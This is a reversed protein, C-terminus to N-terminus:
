IDEDDEEEDEEFVEEEPREYGLLDAFTKPTAKKNDMVFTLVEDSCDVWFSDSETCKAVLCRIKDKVKFTYRKMPNGSIPSSLFMTEEEEIEMADDDDEEILEATDNTFTEGSEAVEGDYEPDEIFTRSRNRQDDFNIEEIDEEAEEEKEDIDDFEGDFDKDDYKYDEDDEEEDEDFDEYEEEVDEDIEEFAEEESEKEEPNEDLDVNKEIAVVDKEFDPQKAEELESEMQKLHKKGWYKELTNKQVWVGECGEVCALYEMKDNIVTQLEVDGCKPCFM